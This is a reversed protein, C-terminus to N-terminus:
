KKNLYFILEDTILGKLRYYTSRSYYDQWWNSSQKHIFENEIFEKKEENFCEMIAEVYEIIGNNLQQKDLLFRYDPTDEKIVLQKDSELTKLQISARLYQKFVARIYTQKEKYNM